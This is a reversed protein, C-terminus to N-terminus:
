SIRLKEILGAIEKVKHRNLFREMKLRVPSKNEANDIHYKLISLVFDSLMKHFSPHTESKARRLDEIFKPAFVYDKVIRDQDISPDLSIAGLSEETLAFYHYFVNAITNALEPDLDNLSGFTEIIAERTREILKQEPQM